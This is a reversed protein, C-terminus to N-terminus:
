QPALGLKYNQYAESLLPSGIFLHILAAISHPESGYGKESTPISISLMIKNQSTNKVKIAEMMYGFYQLCYMKDVRVHTM